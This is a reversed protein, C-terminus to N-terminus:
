HSPAWRSRCPSVCQKGGRREASRAPLTSARPDSQPELRGTPHAVADGAMRDGAVQTVPMELSGAFGRMKGCHATLNFQEFAEDAIARRLDDLAVFHWRHDRGLGIM